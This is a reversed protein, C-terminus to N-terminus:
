RGLNGQLLHAGKPIASEMIFVATAGSGSVFDVGTPELRPIPETFVGAYDPTLMGICNPGILCADSQNVLEVLEKELLAGDEGMESFGGSIIIFAKTNKEKSLVAVAEACSKAPIALIAMEVEPLAHVSRFTTVGQVQEDNPNVAYIQGKFEHELLNKLIKGGPKTINNSAGVVVISTPSLLQRNLM